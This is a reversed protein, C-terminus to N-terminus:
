SVRRMEKRGRTLMALLGLIVAGCVWFFLIFGTGLTAGIAAGTQEAESGSTNIVEGVDAWYLFMWVLMLLNFGLFLLLFLWGFFGRKRREVYVENM